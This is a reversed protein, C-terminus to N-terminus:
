NRRPKLPITEFPPRTLSYDQWDEYLQFKSPHTFYTPETKPRRSSSMPKVVQHREEKIPTFGFSSTMRHATRQRAAVRRREAALSRGPMRTRRPLEEPSVAPWDMVAVKRLAHSTTSQVALIRLSAGGREQGSERSRRSLGKTSTGQSQISRNPMVECAVVNKVVKQVRREVMGGRQGEPLVGALGGSEGFEVACVYGWRIAMAHWLTVMYESLLVLMANM